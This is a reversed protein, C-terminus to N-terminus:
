DLVDALLFYIGAWAFSMFRIWLHFLHISITQRISFDIKVNM